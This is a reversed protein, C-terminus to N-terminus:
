SILQQVIHHLQRIRRRWMSALVILQVMFIALAVGLLWYKGATFEIVSSFFVLLSTAWIVRSLISVAAFTRLQGHWNLLGSKIDQGTISRRSLIYGYVSHAIAIFAATVLALNGYLPKKSGDFADYYLIGFLTFSICEIILQRRISKLIPHNKERLMRKLQDQNRQEAGITNWLNQLNDTEM